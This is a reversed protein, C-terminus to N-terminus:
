RQHVHIAGKTRTGAANAGNSTILGIVGAHDAGADARGDVGYPGGLAQVGVNGSTLVGVSGSGSGQAIVGYAVASAAIGTSGDARVGTGNPASFYGGVGNNSGASPVLVLAAVTGALASRVLARRLYM